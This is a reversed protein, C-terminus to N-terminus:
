IKEELWELGAKYSQLLKDYFSMNAPPPLLGEAHGDDYLRDLLAAYEARVPDLITTQDLVDEVVLYGEENFFEIQEATLM